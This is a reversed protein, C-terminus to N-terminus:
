LHAGGAGVPTPHPSGALDCQAIHDARCGYECDLTALDIARQCSGIHCQCRCSCRVDVYLRALMARTVDAQEKLSLTSM